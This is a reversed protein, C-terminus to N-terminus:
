HNERGPMLAPAWLGPPRTRDDEAPGRQRCRARSAPHADHHSGPDPCTRCDHQWGPIAYTDLGVTPVAVQQRVAQKNQAYAKALHIGSDLHMEVRDTGNLRSTYRCGALAEGTNSHRAGIGEPDVVASDLVSAVEAPRLLHCVGGHRPGDQLPQGPYWVRKWTGTGFKGTVVWTSADALTYTGADQWNPANISWQGNVGEFRGCQQQNGAGWGHLRYSGDARVVWFMDATFGDFKWTGVLAADISPQTSPAPPAPPLQGSAVRGSSQPRTPPEASEAALAPLRAAVLPACCPMSRSLATQVPRAPHPLRFDGPNDVPSPEPLASHFAPPRFAYGQGGQATLTKSM